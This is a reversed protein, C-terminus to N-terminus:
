KIRLVKYPCALVAFFDKIVGGHAVIIVTKHYPVLTNEMFDLVITSDLFTVQYLFM